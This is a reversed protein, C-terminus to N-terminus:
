PSVESPYTTSSPYVVKAPTADIQALLDLAPAWHTSGAPWPAPKPQGNNKLYGTTTKKLHAVAADRLEKNTM